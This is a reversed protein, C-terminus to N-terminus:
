IILIYNYRKKPNRKITDLILKDEDSTTIKKRGCNKYNSNMNGQSIFRNIWFQITSKRYFTGDPKKMSQHERIADISMNQHQYMFQIFFKQEDTIKVM